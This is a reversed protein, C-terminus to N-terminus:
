CCDSIVSNRPHTSQSTSRYPKAGGPLLDWAAPRFVRDGHFLESCQHHRPFRGICVSVASRTVVQDTPVVAPEPGAEGSKVFLELHPVGASRAAVDVTRVMSDGKASHSPTEDGHDM